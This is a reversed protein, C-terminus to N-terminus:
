NQTIFTYIEHLLIYRKHPSFKLGCFSLNQMKCFCYLYLKCRQNTVRLNWIINPSPEMKTTSHLYVNLKEISKVVSPLLIHTYYWIQQNYLFCMKPKAKKEYKLYLTLNILGPWCYQRFHKKTEVWILHLLWIIINGSRKRENSSHLIWIYRSFQSPLLKKLIFLLYISVNHQRELSYGPM